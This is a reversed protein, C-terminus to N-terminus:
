KTKARAAQRADRAAKADLELRRAEDRKRQMNFKVDCIEDLSPDHVFRLYAGCRCLICGEDALHIADDCDPCHSSFVECGAQKWCGAKVDRPKIDTPTDVMEFGM